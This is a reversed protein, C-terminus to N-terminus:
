FLAPIGVTSVSRMRTGSTVVPSSGAGRVVEDDEVGGAVDDGGVFDLEGALDDAADCPDADLHAVLHLFVLDEDAEFVIFVLGADHLLLAEEVVGFRLRASSSAPERM